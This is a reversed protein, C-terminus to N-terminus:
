RQSRCRSSRRQSSTSGCGRPRQASQPFTRASLASRGPAM